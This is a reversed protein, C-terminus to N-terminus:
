QVPVLNQKRLLGNSDFILVLSYHVTQWSQTPKPSVLYFADNADKGIRYTFIKEQEFAASPQGLTFLVDQRTTRGPELFKLLETSASPVVTACGTLAAIFLLFFWKLVTEKIHPGQQSPKM